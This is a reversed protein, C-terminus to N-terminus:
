RILTRLICVATKSLLEALTCIKEDRYMKVLLARFVTPTVNRISIKGKLM